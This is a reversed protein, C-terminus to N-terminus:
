PKRPPNPSVILFVGVVFALLGGTMLVTLGIASTLPLQALLSM